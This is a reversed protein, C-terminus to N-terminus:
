LVQGWHLSIVRTAWASLSFRDSSPATEQSIAQALTECYFQADGPWSSLPDRVQATCEASSDAPVPCAASRAPSM